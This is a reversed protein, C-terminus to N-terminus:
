IIQPAMDAEGAHRPDPRSHPPQQELSETRGVRDKLGVRSLQLPNGPEPWPKGLFDRRVSSAGRGVLHEVQTRGAIDLDKPFALGAVRPQKRPDVVRGPQEEDATFELRGVCQGYRDYAGAM